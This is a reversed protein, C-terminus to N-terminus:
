LPEYVAVFLGLVSMTVAVPVTGALQPPAVTVFVALAVQETGQLGPMATVLAHLLLLSGSLGTIENLPMTLLVPLTVNVLTVTTSVAWPVGVVTNLM